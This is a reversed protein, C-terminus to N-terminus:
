LSSNSFFLPLPKLTTASVGSSWLILFVWSWILLTRAGARRPVWAAGGGRRAGERGTHCARTLGARQQGPEEPCAQTAAKQASSLFPGPNGSAKKRHVGMKGQEVRHGCPMEVM